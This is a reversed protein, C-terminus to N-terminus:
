ARPEFEFGTGASDDATSPEPKDVATEEGSAGFMLALAEPNELAASAITGIAEPVAGHNALRKVGICAVVFVLDANDSTAIAVELYKRFTAHNQAQANLGRALAVIENPTLPDDAHIVGPVITAAVQAVMNIRALFAGIRHELTIRPRRPARTKKPANPDAPPRGRKRKPAAEQMPEAAIPEQVPVAVFKPTDNSNPEAAM